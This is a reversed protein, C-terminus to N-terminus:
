TFFAFFSSDLPQPRSSSAEWSGKHRIIAVTGSPREATAFHCKACRSTVFRSQHPNKGSRFPSPETLMRKQLLVLFLAKRQFFITSKRDWTSPSRLERCRSTSGCSGERAAFCRGRERGRCHSTLVRPQEGRAQAGRPRPRGGRDHVRVADEAELRRPMAGTPGQGLLLLPQGRDPALPRCSVGLTESGNHGFHVGHRHTAAFTPSKKLM